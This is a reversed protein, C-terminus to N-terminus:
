YMEGNGFTFTINQKKTDRIGGMSILKEVVKNMSSSTIEDDFCSQRVQGAILDVNNIREFSMKGSFGSSCLSHLQMRIFGSVYAAFWPRNFINKYKKESPWLYSDLERCKYNLTNGHIHLYGYM